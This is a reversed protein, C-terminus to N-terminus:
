QFFNALKKRQDETYPSYVGTQDVIEYKYNIADYESSTDGYALEAVQAVSRSNYTENYESYYYTDGVKVYAIASFARDYNYDQVPALTGTFMYCGDVTPDTLMKNAVAIKYKSGEVDLKSLADITFEGAEAVYDTPAIIIGYSYSTSNGILANVYDAGLVATFRLGTPNALRVSAGNVMGLGYIAAPAVTCGTPVAVDGARVTFDAPVTASNGILKSVNELPVIIAGEDAGEAEGNAAIGTVYYTGTIARVGDANAKDASSYALAFVNGNGTISGLSVCNTITYEGKDGALIGACGSGASTITGLNMCNTVNVKVDAAYGVFGACYSKYSAHTYTTTVSGNFIVNEISVAGPTYSSTKNSLNGIIGGVNAGKAVITVDAYINSIAIDAENGRNTQGIVGGITGQNTSEVYSDVLAFNEIVAGGQIVGFLGFGDGTKSIHMGSITHGNGDFVGGFSYDWSGIPTHNNEGTLTIDATLKYYATRYKGGDHNNNVLNAINELEEASAIEYPKSETGDGNEFQKPPEIPLIEMNTAVGSPRVVDYAPSVWGTWESWNVKNSEDYSGRLMNIDSLATADSDSTVYKNSNVTSTCNYLNQKTTKGTIYYCDDLVTGDQYNSATFIGNRNDSSSTISGANICRSVYVEGSTHRGVFTAVYKKTSSNQKVTGYNVCDIINVVVNDSYGMFAGVEENSYTVTGNFVVRSITVVGPSYSSNSGSLYGFVGATKKNGGYVFADTYINEILIDNGDVRNTGGVVAGVGGSNAIVCSNVLILNKIVAGGQICGFLGQNDGSSTIYLGSITKGNGDFTGGFAVDWGGIATFNKNKPASEKWESANGSNLVIDYTLKFYVGKCNNGAYVIEDDNKDDTGKDDIVQNVLKALYALQAGNAIEYPKEKSGEGGAFGEAVSGDWVESADGASATMPMVAFMGALISLVLIISLIRKNM